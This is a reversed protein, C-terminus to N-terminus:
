EKVELLEPNDFINGVVECEYGFVNMFSIELDNNFKIIFMAELNDWSVVGYGDEEDIGCSNVIVVDGEFIKGGDNDNQGTYQCVTESMVSNGLGHGDEIIYEGDVMSLWGEIWEGDALQKAKFLIDRM